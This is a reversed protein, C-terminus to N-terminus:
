ILCKPTLPRSMGNSSAHKQAPSRRFATTRTLWGSCCIHMSIMEEDGVSNVHNGNGRHYRQSNLRNPPFETAVCQGDLMLDWLESPTEAGPFVFSFGVIAVDQDMGHGDPSSPVTRQAPSPHDLASGGHWDLSPSELGASSLDACDVDSTPYDGM